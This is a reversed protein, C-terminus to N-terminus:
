RKRQKKWKYTVNGSNDILKKKSGKKMLERQRDMYHQIKHLEQERKLHSAVIKLKKAKKKHLSSPPMVEEADALRVEALQQNTLRNETRSLLASPTNFYQDPNFETMSPRDEVFITHKGTHKFAVENTLKQAKKIEVQRVTRIYNSDQTKLLKVQETSLSSPTDTAHRSQIRLGREDTNNSHMAHYYEDPNRQQAKSRLIKLTSQKRHFDQARKVYDKHKELFGFRSRESVQSRERHQKKQVNHVLKTM